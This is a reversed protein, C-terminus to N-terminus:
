GAAAAPAASQAQTPQAGQAFAQAIVIKPAHNPINLGFAAASENLEATSLASLYAAATITAKWATLRGIVDYRTAAHRLNQVGCLIRLQLTFLDDFTIGTAVPPM